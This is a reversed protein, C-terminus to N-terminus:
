RQMKPLRNIIEIFEAVAGYGGITKLQLINPINKILPMANAPCAAIGNTRLLYEIIGLDNMDDGIYAIESPHLTHKQCIDCLIQVKKNSANLFLQEKPMHCQAAFKQPIPGSEGTILFSLRGSSNWNKLSQIDTPSFRKWESNDEGYIKFGDTCTGDIDCILVGIQKEMPSIFFDDRKMRTENYYSLVDVNKDAFTNIFTRIPHQTINKFKDKSFLFKPQEELFDSPTLQNDFIAIERLTCRHERCFQAIFQPRNSVNTFCFSIKLDRCRRQIIKTFNSSQLVVASPIKLVNALINKIAFGDYTSFPIAQVMSSFNKENCFFLSDNILYGDHPLTLVKEPNWFIGDGIIILKSDLISFM